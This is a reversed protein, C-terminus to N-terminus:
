FTGALGLEVRDSRASGTPVISASSTKEKKEGDKRALLAADLAVASVVGAGAGVVFALACGLGCNGDSGAYVLGTAALGM